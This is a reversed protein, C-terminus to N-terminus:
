PLGSCVDSKIFFLLGGSPIIPETSYRGIEIGDLANRELREYERELLIAGVSAVIQDTKSLRRM